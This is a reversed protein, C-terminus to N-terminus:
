YSLSDAIIALLTMPSSPDNPEFNLSRANNLRPPRQQPFELARLTSTSTGLPARNQPQYVHHYCTPLLLSGLLHQPFYKYTRHQSLNGYRRSNLAFYRLLPQHPMSMQVSAGM